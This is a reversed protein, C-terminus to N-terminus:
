AVTLELWLDNRWWQNVDDETLAHDKLLMCMRVCLIRSVHVCLDIVLISYVHM